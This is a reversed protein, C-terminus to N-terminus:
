TSSPKTSSLPSSGRVGLSGAKHEGLQAVAGGRATVNCPRALLTLSRCGHRQNAAPKGGLPRSSLTTGALPTSGRRGQPCQTKLGSRRGTGVRRCASLMSRRSRRYSSSLDGSFPRRCPKRPSRVCSSWWGPPATWFMLLAFAALAIAIDARPARGCRTTSPPACSEWWPATSAASRPRSTEEYASRM